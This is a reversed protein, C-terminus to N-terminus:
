SSALMKSKRKAKVAFWIIGIILLGAAIIALIPAFISLLSLGIATGTEAVSVVPNAVGATTASSVARTATTAGQITTAAGGGAVIALAWTLAPSLDTLTSAMVLTGAIGALPIALSDLANDVFPVLYSISEVVSAVGLIILAPTSAVWQWSESLPIFGFFSALSLIFLPIFVRFGASAALGVGLCISLLMEITINM